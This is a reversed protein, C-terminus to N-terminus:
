LRDYYGSKGKPGYILWGGILTFGTVGLVGLVIDGWDAKRRPGSDYGSDARRRAAEREAKDIDVLKQADRRTQEDTDYQNEFTSNFSFLTIAVAVSLLIKQM